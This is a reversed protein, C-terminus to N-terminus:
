EIIKFFMYVDVTQNMRHPKLEKDLIDVSLLCNDGKTRIPLATLSSNRLVAIVSTHGVGQTYCKNSSDSYAVLTIPMSDADFVSVKVDPIRSLSSLIQCRDDNSSFLFKHTGASLGTARRADNGLHLRIEPNAGFGMQRSITIDHQYDVDSAISILNSATLGVELVDSELGQSYLLDKVAKDVAKVKKLQTATDATKIWSHQEVAFNELSVISFKVTLNRSQIAAAGELLWGQLDELMDLPSTGQNQVRPRLAEGEAPAGEDDEEDAEMEQDQEEAAASEYRAMLNGSVVRSGEYLQFTNTSNSIKWSDEDAERDDLHSYLGLTYFFFKEKCTMAYGPPLRLVFNHTGENYSLDPSMYYMPMKSRIHKFSERLNGALKEATMDSAFPKNLKKTMSFPAPRVEMTLLAKDLKKSAM